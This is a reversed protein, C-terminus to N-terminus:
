GTGVRGLAWNRRNARVDELLQMADVTREGSGRVYSELADCLVGYFEQGSM